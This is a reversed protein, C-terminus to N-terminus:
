RIYQTTLPQDFGYKALYIERTEEPLDQVMATIPDGPISHVLFFTITIVTFLVLVMYGLRKLTFKLM